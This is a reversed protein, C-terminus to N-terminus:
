VHHYSAGQKQKVFVLSNSRSICNNKRMDSLTKKEYVGEIKPQVCYSLKSM